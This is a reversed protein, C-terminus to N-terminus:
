NSIAATGDAPAFYESYMHFVCMRLADYALAHPLGLHSKLHSEGHHSRAAEDICYLTVNEMYKKLAGCAAGRRIFWNLKLTLNRNLKIKLLLIKYRSREKYVFYTCARILQAQQSHSSIKFCM